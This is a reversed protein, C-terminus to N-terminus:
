NTICAQISILKKTIILFLKNAIYCFFLSVINKVFDFAPQLLGLSFSSLPQTAGPRSVSNRIAFADGIEIAISLQLAPWSFNNKTNSNNNNDDDAHIEQRRCNLKISCEIDTCQYYLFPIAKAVVVSHSM